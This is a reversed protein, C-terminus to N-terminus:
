TMFGAVSVGRAVMSEVERSVTFEIMAEEKSFKEEPTQDRVSADVLNETRELAAV